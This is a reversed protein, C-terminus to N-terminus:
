GDLAKDIRAILHNFAEEPTKGIAILRDGLSNCATVEFTFETKVEEGKLRFGRYGKVKLIKVSKRLSSNKRKKSVVM